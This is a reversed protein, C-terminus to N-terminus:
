ACASSGRAAREADVDERYAAGIIARDPRLAPLGTRVPAGPRVRGRLADAPVVYQLLSVDPVRELKEHLDFPFQLPDTSALRRSVM